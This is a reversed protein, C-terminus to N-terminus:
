NDHREVKWKLQMCWKHNMGVYIDYLGFSYKYLHRKIVKSLSKRKLISRSNQWRTAVDRRAEQKLDINYIYAKMNLCIRTYLQCIIADISGIHYLSSLNYSTDVQAPSTSMFYNYVRSGFTQDGQSLHPWWSQHTLMRLIIVCERKIFWIAEETGLM